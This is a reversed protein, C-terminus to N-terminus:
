CPDTWGFGREAGPQRPSAGKTLMELFAEVRTRHQGSIAEDELELLLVPVGRGELHQRLIPYEALQLDCFKGYACIAGKVDRKAVLLSLYSLRSPLDRRRPGPPKSLYALALTQLLGGLTDADAPVPDSVDREDLDSDEAVVRAGGAEVLHVLSTPAASEALLLLGRSSTMASADSGPSKGMEQMAQLTQLLQQNAALPEQGLAIRRLRRYPATNLSGALWHRKLDALCNRQQNYVGIAQRLSDLSLSRGTRAGLDAALRTLLEAYRRAAMPSALRPVELFGWVPVDVCAQWVDHLRRTADDEDAFIVAEPKPQGDELFSALILRSLACFNRPLFAEAATPKAASPFVRVPIYGLAYIFERPITASLLGITQDVPYNTQM